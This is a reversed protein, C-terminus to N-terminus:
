GNDDEVKFRVTRVWQERPDAILIGECEPFLLAYVLLRDRLGSATWETPMRPKEAKVLYYRDEKVAIYDFYLRSAQMSGDDVSVGLPIRHKGSVVEYGQQALLEVTEDPEVPGGSKALKRLQYGPPEHLWNHFRRWIWWLALFVATLFVLWDGLKAM